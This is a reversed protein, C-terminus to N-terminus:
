RRKAKKRRKAREKVQGSTRRYNSQQLDLMGGQQAHKKAHPVWCVTANSSSGGVVRCKYSSPWRPVQQGVFPLRAGCQLTAATCVADMRTSYTVVQCQLARGKGRLEDSCLSSGGAEHRLCAKLCSGQQEATPTWWYWSCNCEGHFPMSRAARTRMPM